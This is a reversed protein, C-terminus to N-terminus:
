SMGGADLPRSGGRRSGSERRSGDPRGGRRRRDRDSGNGREPSGTGVRSRSSQGSLVLLGLGGIALVLGAALQAWFGPLLVAAVGSYSIEAVAVDLGKPLDVLLTVAITAVGALATLGFLTRRGSVVASILGGLALAGVALLLFSHADIPTLVDIRPARTIDQIPNYDAQGVETARFDLFQSAILTAIGAGAVVILARRPTLLRDLATLAEGLRSAAKSLLRSFGALVTGAASLLGLLGAALWRVAPGMSELGTLILAWLFGATRRLENLTARIGRSLPNGTATGGRSGTGTNKSEARSSSRSGPRGGRRRQERAEKRQRETLRAPPDSLRKARQEASLRRDPREDESDSKPKEPSM